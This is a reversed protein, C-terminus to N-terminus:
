HSLYLVSRRWVPLYRGTFICNRYRSIGVSIPQFNGFSIRYLSSLLFFLSETLSEFLQEM